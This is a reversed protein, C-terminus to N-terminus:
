AGVKSHFVAGKQKIKLTPFINKFFFVLYYKVNYFLINYKCM